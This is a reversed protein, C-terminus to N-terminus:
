YVLLKIKILSFNFILIQLFIGGGRQGGGGFGLWVSHRFAENRQMKEKTPTPPPSPTIRHTIFNSWIPFHIFLHPPM